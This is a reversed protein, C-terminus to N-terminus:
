VWVVVVPCWDVVLGGICCCGLLVVAVLVFLVMMRCGVGRVWLVLVFSDTFMLM